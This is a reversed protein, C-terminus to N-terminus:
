PEVRSILADGLHGGGQTQIIEAFYSRYGERRMKVAFAFLITMTDNYTLAFQHPVDLRDIGLDVTRFTYLLARPSPPIPGDGHQRIHEMVHHYALFICGDADSQPLEPEDAAFDVSFARDPVPYPNPLPDIQLAEKPQRNM